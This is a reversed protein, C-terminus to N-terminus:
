LQSINCFDQLAGGNGPWIRRHPTSCRKSRRHLNGGQLWLLRFGMCMRRLTSSIIRAHETVNQTRELAIHCVWGGHSPRPSYGMRDTPWKQVRTVIPQIRKTIGTGVKFPQIPHAHAHTHVVILKVVRFAASNWRTTCSPSASIDAHRVINGQLGVTLALLLLVGLTSKRLVIVLLSHLEFNWCVRRCCDINPTILVVTPSHDPRFKAADLGLMQVHLLLERELVRVHCRMGMQSPQSM